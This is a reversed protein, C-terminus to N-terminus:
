AHRSCSSMLYKLACPSIITLNELLTCLICELARCTRQLAAYSGVNYAFDTAFNYEDQDDDSESAFGGGESETM